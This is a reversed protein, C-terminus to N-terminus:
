VSSFMIEYCFLLFYNCNGTTSQDESCSRGWYVQDLNTVLTAYSSNKSSLGCWGTSQKFNVALCLFTDAEECAKKCLEETTGSLQDKNYPLSMDDQRESWTCTLGETLATHMLISTYLHTNNSRYHEIIIGQREPPPDHKRRHTNTQRDIM